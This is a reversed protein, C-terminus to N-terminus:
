LIRIRALHKQTRRGASKSHGTAARAAGMVL